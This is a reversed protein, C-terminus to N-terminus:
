MRTDLLAFLVWVTGRLKERYEWEIERQKKTTFINAEMLDETHEM